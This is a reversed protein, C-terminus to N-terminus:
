VDGRPTWRTWPIKSQGGWSSGTSTGWLTIPAELDERDGQTITPIELNEFFKDMEGEEGMRQSKYWKTYYNSFTDIIESTLSSIGGSITRITPIASPPFNAKALHALMRRM